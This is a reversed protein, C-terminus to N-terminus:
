PTSLGAAEKPEKMLWCDKSASWDATGNKLWLYHAYEMNGEETYIDIGMKKAMDAHYKENIQFIGVDLKNMKGRVVEGNEDFQRLGSECRAIQYFIPTQPGFIDLFKQTLQYPSINVAAFAFPVLFKIM